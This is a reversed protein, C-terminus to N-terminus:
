GEMTDSIKKFYREPEDCYDILQDTIKKFEFYFKIIKKENPPPSKKIEDIMQLINAEIQSLKEDVDYKRSIIQFSGLEDMTEEIAYRLKEEYIPLPDM